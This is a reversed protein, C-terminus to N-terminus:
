CAAAEGQPRRRGLYVERVEPQRLVDAAAGEAIVEGKNMVVLRRCLAAVMTINHEVLVITLGDERNLSDILASLAHKESDNMGAAPEDLLLLRPAGALARAIEVRRRDGYSLAGATQGAFPELATREIMADAIARIRREAARGRPLGLVSEVPSASAAAHAGAMVNQRVTLDDFLRINQFTRVMGLRARREPSARTVDRGDFAIHGESPRLVGTIVNFATTKGAGNPGILGLLDGPEITLSFRSLAIVGGFHKGVDTAQLLTM